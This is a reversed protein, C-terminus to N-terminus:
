NTASTTGPRAISLRQQKMVASVDCLGDLGPEDQLPAGARRRGRRQCPVLLLLHHKFFLETLDAM